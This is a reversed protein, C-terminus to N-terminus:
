RSRGSVVARALDRWNRFRIRASDHADKIDDAHHHDYDDNRAIQAHELVCLGNQRIARRHLRSEAAVLNYQRCRYLRAAGARDRQIIDSGWFHRQKRGYTPPM